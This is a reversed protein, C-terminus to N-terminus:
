EVDLGAKHLRQFLIERGPIPRGFLSLHESEVKSSGFHPYLRASLLHQLVLAYLLAELSSHESSLLSVRAGESLKSIDELGMGELGNLYFFFSRCFLEPDSLTSDKQERVWLGDGAILQGKSGPLPLRGFISGNPPSDFNTFVFGQEALFADMKAFSTGTSWLARMNFELRIAIVNRLQEGASILIEFESGETDLKLIAPKGILFDSLPRVEVKIHEFEGVGQVPIKWNSNDPSIDAFGSLGRHERLVFPRASSAVGLAVAHVSVGRISAYQAQLRESETPDPEFLHIPVMGVLRRLSPHIGYRAGVDIVDFQLSSVHILM